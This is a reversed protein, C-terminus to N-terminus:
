KLIFIKELLLCFIFTIRTNYWVKGSMIGSTKSHTEFTLNLSLLLNVVVELFFKDAANLGSKLKKLYVIFLYIWHGDLWIVKIIRCPAVKNYCASFINSICFVFKSSAKDAYTRVSLAAAGHLKCPLNHSRQSVFCVFFYCRCGESMDCDM